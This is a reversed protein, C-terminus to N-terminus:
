EPSLLMEIPVCGNTPTKRILNRPPPAFTASLPWGIRRWSTARRTPGWVRKSVDRIVKRGEYLSQVAYRPM